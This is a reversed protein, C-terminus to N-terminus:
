LTSAVSVTRLMSPAPLMLVAALLPTTVNVVWIASTTVPVGSVLVKLPTIDSPGLAASANPFDPKPVSVSLLALVKVPPVVKDAPVKAKPLLLRKALLPNSVMVPPVNLMPAKLWVTEDKAM